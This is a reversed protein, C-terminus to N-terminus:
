GSGRNETGESRRRDAAVSDDLRLVEDVDSSATSRKAMVELRGVAELIEVVGYDGVLGLAAFMQALEKRTNGSMVTDDAAAHRYITRTSTELAAGLHQLGGYEKIKRLTERLSADADQQTM